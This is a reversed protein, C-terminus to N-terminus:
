RKYSMLVHLDFFKAETPQLISSVVAWLSNLSYPLVIITLVIFFCYHKWGVFKKRKVEKHLAGM